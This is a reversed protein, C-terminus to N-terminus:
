ATVNKKRFSVVTATISFALFFLNIIILLAGQEKAVNYGGGDIYCRIESVVFSTMIGILSFVMGIISLAKM